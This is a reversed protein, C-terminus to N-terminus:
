TQVQYEAIDQNGGNKFALIEFCLNQTRLKIFFSRIQKEGIVLKSFPPGSQM